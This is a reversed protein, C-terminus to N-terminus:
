PQCQLRLREYNLNSREPLDYPATCQGENWKIKLHGTDKELLVLAKGTPDSIALQKGEADEVSAGFPMLQGRHDFLEFQVRRGSKGIYRALVVAGRRPVLQQTANEIEIDSGLDRTDLSMWNVRYPQASPIVAYGNRGTEVGSFNSIKAGKVGPVEALAFTESVTQGLNIGGQHAVVAGAVNLNQSDYGRGQSYGVSIDAMSTRANLNASASNGSTRSHGGQVSYFIENSDSLYGNVGAQTTENGKQTSSTIFARPSRARSGLPFSMSLNLQTDDSSAGSTGLDKTKSLDISYTVDGWSNSYGASVSQSGGRNWYRQDTATLHLNGFERNRGLSQNVTLDTRTKSNGSRKRVDSSLDEIHNTLSRFGETSYRYAALTFNTDTGTFTKAYLARLSNGQTNRGQAQSSSHTVDFSFAGLMTNHGSGVALAKYNDTAQMGVIGTLNNTIGYALTASLMQPTALGDSNSNYRGASVSYKVQGHRVMLPLSSFAQVNVRRRGDAEIITIELDGNSGSPYIDSIEFPGPPVNTTYLLYNNQRIEVTASTQAVGRVVPAYGRESDARMGEDSAIKLGRYRVSDFLDTDTFIDGASFQGKLATVDHQLYSRNSQFKNPRGTGSSFNSENRLRWGGLNIGNRLSLNNATNTQGDSGSRSTSFQYNSFAAAVGADWLQPDVYGRLGRKMALQPISASLRLRNSDYSLSAQDILLSLDYCARASDLHGQAKLKDMDVGLQEILELTLCPDVRGTQVNRNFDIDRRGVLVDNSYLDVRYTGPLVSNASLLLQLDVSSQAGQLFTTNFGQLSKDVETVEADAFGPISACIVLSLASRKWLSNAANNHGVNENVSISRHLAIPQNM